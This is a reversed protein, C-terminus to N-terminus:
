AHLELWVHLYHNEREYLKGINVTQKGLTKPIMRVRLYRVDPKGLSLWERLLDYMAIFADASGFNYVNGQGDYPAMCASGPTLLAFGTDSLVGYAQQGEQVFYHAFRIGRPTNLMLYPVFAHQAEKKDLPTGLYAYDLDNELLLHTAIPDIEDLDNAVLVLGSGHIEVFFDPGAASGRIQIFSCPINNVSLLSGDPQLTFAASIQGNLWLPAVLIGEPKLQKLWAPPVDYIGVTSIIRDYSARPSYGIAGDSNVVLVSHMRARALNQEAQQALDKDLEITTIKGQPGVIHQMIAANYGTATGIELVNDGPRLALQELMIAMMTPQSSSSLASGRADRKIVIARDTYVEELPLDPLFMHRPVARFAAEIRPDTLKGAAKLEDVFTQANPIHATSNNSNTKDTM